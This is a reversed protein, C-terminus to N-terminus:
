GGRRVLRALRDRLDARDFPKVVFDDAGASLAARRSEAGDMGSLMVLPLSAAQPLLRVRRCLEMGDMGPMVCDVLAVDPPQAAIMELARAGSAATVVRYGEIGLVIEMLKRSREDDDVVLAVPQPNEM